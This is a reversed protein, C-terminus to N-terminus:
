ALHIFIPTTRLAETARSLGSRLRGADHNDEYQDLVAMLAKACDRITTDVGQELM